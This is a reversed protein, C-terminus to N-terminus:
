SAFAELAKAESREKKVKSKGYFFGWTISAKLNIAQM